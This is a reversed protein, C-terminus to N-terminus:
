YRRVCRVRILADKWPLSIQSGDSMRQNWAANVSAETSSWYEGGTIDGIQSGGNYLLNLENKAPLYWDDHGHAVLSDCYAAADYGTPSVALLAATNGAGDTLSDAPDDVGGGIDSWTISAVDTSIDAMYMPSSDAPSLGAYYSGDVCVDGINPCDQQPQKGIGVWDVGNCYQMIRWSPNYHMAGETHAAATCGFLRQIEAASLARNYIRVDDLEGAWVRANTANSRGIETDGASDRLTGDAASLNEIDLSGDIYLAMRGTNDYVAAIHYWRGTDLRANANLKKETGDSQRIVWQPEDTDIGSDGVRLIWSSNAGTQEKSIITTISSNTGFVSGNVWATVTMNASSDGVDGIAVYDDTDDFDLAGSKIGSVWDTAPDMNTLTGTNGNGSSDAASTGSTEDLKWWGVLGENLSDGTALYAVAEPSLAHNYIRVDDMQGDYYRTNDNNTRVGIQVHTSGDRM